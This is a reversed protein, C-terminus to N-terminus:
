YKVTYTLSAGFPEVLRRSRELYDDDLLNTFNAALSHSLKSAHPRWAYSLGARTSFYSPIVIDRYGSHSVIVRRGGPLTTVVGGRDAFPKTEGTYTLGLNVKFGRLPGTRWTKRVAVYASQKPVGSMQRGLQDLDQGAETYAANNYGGGFLLNLGEVVTWNADLEVGRSLISGIRRSEGDEDVVRINERVIYFGGLTFTLKEQLADVKFGYDWGFGGENVPDVEGGFVPASNTQSNVFFSEAFNVYARVNKALGVNLGLNPTLHDQDRKLTSLQGTGLRQETERRLDEKVFDYRLGAVVIARGQWAATQHRLFLGYIDTQNNNWRFLPYLAPFDRPSPWVYGPNRPDMIRAFGSANLPNGAAARWQPDQRSYTSYDFTLLTRNELARDVLWYRATLDAQFGAGDEKSLGYAPLRDILRGANAGDIQYHPAVGGTVNNSHGVVNRNFHNAAARMSWVSDIKHEFTATFTRVSRDTAEAPGYWNFGAIETALRGHYNGGLTRRAVPVPAVPNNHRDIYEFEVTLQTAPAFRHAIAGSLVKTRLQAFPQDFGQELYSANLLYSTNALRGLPGTAEVDARFLDNTGATLALKYGPRSKPKKTVINILGSPLAEGYIAASPGKIIEIRDVNARDTVGIRLFGNRLSKGVALGRVNAGGGGPDYGGLSSTYAFDDGFDFFGFDEIFESTLVNIPYPLLRIKEAVRSGTITESATYSDAPEARVTFETLHVTETEQVAAPAATQAFSFSAAALSALVLLRAHRLIPKRNQM